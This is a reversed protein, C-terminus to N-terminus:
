KKLEEFIKGEEGDLIKKQTLMMQEFYHGPLLLELAGREKRNTM